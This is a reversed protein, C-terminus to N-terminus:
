AHHILWGIGQYLRWGLYIVTAGIMLRFKWPIPQPEVLTAGCTPCAGGDTLDDDTVDRDCTDCWAM